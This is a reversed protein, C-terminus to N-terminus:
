LFFCNWLEVCGPDAMKLGDDKAFPFVFGDPQPFLGMSKVNRPAAAINPASVDGAKENVPFLNMTTVTPQRAM